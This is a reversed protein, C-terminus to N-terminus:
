WVDGAEVRAAGAHRVGYVRQYYCKGGNCACPPSGCFCRAHDCPLLQATRSAAPDFPAAQPAHPRAPMAPDAHADPRALLLCARMSHGEAHREIKRLRSATARMHTVQSVAQRWPAAAGHAQRLAPLERM